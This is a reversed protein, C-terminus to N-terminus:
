SPMPIGYSATSNRTMVTVRVTIDLQKVLQVLVRSAAVAVAVTDLFPLHHVASRAATFPVLLRGEYGLLAGHARVRVV